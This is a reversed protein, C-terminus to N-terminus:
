KRAEFVKYGGTRALPVVKAFHAILAAEYPLAVNAVLRCVGGKKLSRAAAGIFATGLARDEHGADHFPPNMIVFDLDALDPSPLRADDHLFAARPDAVNRRAAAVARADNDILVLHTVDPSALVARGLVGVGCGLDAGRGAFASPQALLAASGPDLRDWSFIGPQSWLGLMPAPQPGGATIADSLGIPATPRAARCIRHHRRATEEVQCGFAELEKRLRAGGKDKPALAILEGEPALARLLHALAFRRELTGPPALIAGRSVGGDALSELSQAGPVLPSVQVADAGAMALEPPPAGYLAEAV